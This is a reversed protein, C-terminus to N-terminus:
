QTLSELNCIVATGGGERPKIELDAGIMRARYQMIPLGMGGAEAGSNRIGTGDDEITLILRGGTERLFM